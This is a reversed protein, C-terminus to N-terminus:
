AIISYILVNIDNMHSYLSLQINVKYNGILNITCVFYQPKDLWNYIPLMELYKIKAPIERSIEGIAEPPLSIGQLAYITLSNKRSYKIVVTGQLIVDM